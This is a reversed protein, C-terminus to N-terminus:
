QNMLSDVVDTNDVPSSGDDSSSGEDNNSENNEILGKGHKVTNGINSLDLTFVHDLLGVSVMKETNGIHIKGVSFFVYSDVQLVQDIAVNAIGSMLLSNFTGMLGDNEDQSSVLKNIQNIVAQKHEAKGPCTIAMLIAIVAIGLFTWTGCGWGTKRPPTYRYPPENERGHKQQQAPEPPPPPMPAAQQKQKQQSLLAKLEEVQWAPTWQEMGETWVLTESQLGHNLLENPEFPGSQTGSEYIFYRM